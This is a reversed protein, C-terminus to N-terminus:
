RETTDETEESIEVKCKIVEAEGLEEQGNGDERQAHFAWLLDFTQGCEQNFEMEIEIQHCQPGNIQETEIRNQVEGDDDNATTTAPINEIQMANTPNIM